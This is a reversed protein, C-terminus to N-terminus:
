VGLGDPVASQAVIKKRRRSSTRQGHVNVPDPPKRAAGAINANAASAPANAANPPWSTATAPTPTM